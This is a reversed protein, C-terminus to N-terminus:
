DHHHLMDGFPVIANSQQNLSRGNILAAISAISNILSLCRPCFLGAVHMEGADPGHTAAVPLTLHRPDKHGYQRAAKVARAKALSARKKANILEEKSAQKRQEMEEPYMEKILVKSYHYMGAMDGAHDHVDVGMEAFWEPHEKAARAWKISGDIRYQSIIRQILEKHPLLKSRRDTNM